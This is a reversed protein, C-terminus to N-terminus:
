GLVGQGRIMVRGWSCVQRINPRKVGMVVSGLQGRLREAEIVSSPVVNMVWVM